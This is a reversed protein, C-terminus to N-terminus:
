GKIQKGGMLRACTYLFKGCVNYNSHHDKHNGDGFTILSLLKSNKASKSREDYKGSHAITVLALLSFLSYFVPIAYLFLFGKIGFILTVIVPYSLVTMWFGLNSDFFRQYKDKILHRVSMMDINEIKHLCFFFVKWKLHKPSHPDLETDAHKHHAGHWMSWALPSGAIAITAIYMLFIEIVRPFKFIRHYFTHHVGINFGYQTFLFSLMFAAIWWTLSAGVFFAYVVPILLFYQLFTTYLVRYQYTQRNIM